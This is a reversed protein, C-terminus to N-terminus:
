EIVQDARALLAPPITLGLAKATRLNIALEFTTPQQVPLDAPRAGRLIRGAYEGLLRYTSAPNTGYSILGGAAVFEPMEYIALIAHHAVLAAIRERYGYFLPAAGILLAHPPKAGLRTFAQDIEEASSVDHVQLELGIARAAAEVDRLQPGASPARPDTFYAVARAHPVLERLLEMRKPTLGASLFTVGTANGDPRSLSSVLGTEVPDGGTHFAIPITRSARTAAVAAPGGSTVILAVNLAVLESALAPLREYRGESSRYVIAVNRGEVYGLDKLGDRFAALAPGATQLPTTGLFGIVPMAAQQARGPLSGVFSAAGALAMLNRRRM